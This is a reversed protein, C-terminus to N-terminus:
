PKEEMQIVTVCPSPKHSISEEMKVKISRLFIVCSVVFVFLVIVMLFALWDRAEFPMPKYAETWITDWKQAPINWVAAHPTM